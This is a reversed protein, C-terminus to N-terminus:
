APSIERLGQLIQPLSLGLSTHMGESPEVWPPQISMRQRPHPLAEPTHPIHRDITYGPLRAPLVVCPLVLRCLLFYDAPPVDEVALLQM